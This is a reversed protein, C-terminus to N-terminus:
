FALDFRSLSSAKTVTLDRNIRANSKGFAIRLVEFNQSFNGLQSPQVARDQNARRTFAKDAPQEILRIGLCPTPARRCGTTRRDRAPGVNESYVVTLGHYFDALNGIGNPPLSQGIIAPRSILRQDAAKEM